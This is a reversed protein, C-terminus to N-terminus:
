QRRALELRRRLLIEVESADAGPHHARIGARAVECALEHLDLAISLREQGTMARYRAIQLSLADDPKVPGNYARRVGGVLGSGSLVRRWKIDMCPM